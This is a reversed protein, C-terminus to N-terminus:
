SHEPFQVHFIAGWAGRAALAPTSGSNADTDGTATFFFSRFRSGPRFLGNEPRKFPTAGAAKAEANANFAPCNPACATSDHVNVFRAPWESGPTHLKLQAVAFVDAQIQAASTGGFVVPQGDITVQLAQLVGGKSLDHIDNPVFRFVFSNPQRATKPSNPNNPDVNTSPGGSDECIWLNGDKDAHIGEFGGKGIFGDLTRVQSPWDPTIE